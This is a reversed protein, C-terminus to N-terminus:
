WGTSGRRKWIWPPTPNIQSWLGLREQRAKRELAMLNPDKSYYIHRWALGARVLAAGLEEEGFQTVWAVLRGYRDREKERILVVQHRVRREIFRKAEEAFPQGHEPADIGALRIKEKRAGRDVVLTDGDVVRSVWGQWDDALLPSALLFMVFTCVVTLFMRGKVSLRHIM